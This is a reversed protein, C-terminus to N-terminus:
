RRGNPLGEEMVKELVEMPLLVRRGVRISRLRRSAIYNRITYPSVGLLKAAESVGVTLRKPEKREESQARWPFEQVASRVQPLSQVEARVRRAVEALVSDVFGDLAVTRGGVLFRVQIDFM